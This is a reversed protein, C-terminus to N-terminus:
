EYKGLEQQIESLAAKILREMQCLWVAIKDMQTEYRAATEVQKNLRSLENSGVFSLTMRFRHSARKLQDWNETQYAQQLAKWGVPLEDTLMSLMLKKMAADGDAMLDLYNLDIGRQADVQM